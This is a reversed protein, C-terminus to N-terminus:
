NQETQEDLLVRGATNDAVPSRHNGSKLTIQRHRLLRWLLSAPWTRQIYQGDSQLIFSEATETVALM